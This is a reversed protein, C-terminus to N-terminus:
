RRCAFRSWTRTSTRAPEEFRELGLGADLFTQVFAGLALHTAGVKARLGAPSVGPGDSYRGASRYGSHLEPVGVPARRVARPARRLVSARGPLRVARGPRLVRAIERLASGFEDVDTHPWLAVVADFSADDFPLAAADAQVVDVGRARARRSSRRRVRRRGDRELRAGASARGYRAGTGCGVDLLRGPGTM